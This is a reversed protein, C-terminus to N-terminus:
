VEADFGYAYTFALFDAVAEFLDAYVQEGCPQGHDMDYVAFREGRQEIVLQDHYPRKSPFALLYSRALEPHARLHEILARRTVCFFPKIDLADIGHSKLLAHASRHALAEVQADLPIKATTSM